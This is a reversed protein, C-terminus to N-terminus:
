MLRSLSCPDPRRANFCTGSPFAGVWKAYAQEKKALVVAKAFLANQSCWTRVRGQVERKTRKASEVYDISCLNCSITTKAWAAFTRRNNEALLHGAECTQQKDRLRTL